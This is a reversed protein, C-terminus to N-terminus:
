EGEDNYYNKCQNFCIKQEALEEKIEELSSVNMDNEIAFTCGRFCGQTESGSEDVCGSLLILAICFLIVIVKAM